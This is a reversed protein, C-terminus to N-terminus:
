QSVPQQSATTLENIAAQISQFQGASRSYFVDNQSATTNDYYFYKMEAMQKIQRGNATIDVVIYYPNCYENACVASVQFNAGNLNQTAVAPQSSVGYTSHLTTIDYYASNVRIRTIVSLGNGSAVPNSIRTFETDFGSAKAADDAAQSNAANTDRAGTANQRAKLDNNKKACSALAVTAVLCFLSIRVLKNLSM